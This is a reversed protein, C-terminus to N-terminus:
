GIRDKIAHGLMRTVRIAVYLGVLKWGIAHGVDAPFAPLLQPMDVYAHASCTSTTENWEVCAYVKM